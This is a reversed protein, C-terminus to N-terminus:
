HVNGDHEGGKELLYHIVKTVEARTVNTHAVVYDIMVSLPVTQKAKKTPEPQPGPQHKKNM